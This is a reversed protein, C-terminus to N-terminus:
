APSRMRRLFALSKLRRDLHHEVQAELVAEVEDLLAPDLKLRRYLAIDGAAAVRLVKLAAVSVALMGPVQDATCVLGGAPPSFFAPEPPLPRECVVCSALNPAYGLFELAQALFYASARRPDEDRALDDLALMTLEYLGDIPHRDESVRDALEAILSAHATRDPDAALRAGPLRVAQTLVDLQGRGRALQVDVHAFLELAAALRSASRRVGKAIAPVKGHEATLLTYIRDAEGYDLKRLIVARERYTTV